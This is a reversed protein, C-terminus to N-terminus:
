EDDDGDLYLEGDIEKLQRGENAELFEGYDTPQGGTDTQIKEGSQKALYDEFTSIGATDTDTTDNEANTTQLDKALDRVVDEFLDNAEIEGLSHKAITKWVVREINDPNANNLSQAVIELNRHETASM